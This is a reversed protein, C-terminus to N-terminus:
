RCLILPFLFSLAQDVRIDLHVVTYVVLPADYSELNVVRLLPLEDFMASSMLSLGAPTARYDLSIDETVAAVHEPCETVTPHLSGVQRFPIHDARTSPAVLKV